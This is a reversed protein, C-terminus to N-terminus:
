TGTTTLDRTARGLVVRLMASLLPATLRSTWTAPLPGALPVHESWTVRCTTPSTPLVVITATGVLLPGQKTFEAVGASVGPTAASPSEPQSVPPDYRTVVMRDVVGPWGRRAGPGSVARVQTGLRPPGDTRVRTLPVWAEHRRADTLAQWAVDAPVDLARTVVATGHEHVPVDRRAHQPTHPATHPSTREQTM